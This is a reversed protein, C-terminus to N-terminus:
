FKKIKEKFPRVEFIPFEIIFMAGQGAESECWIKGNMAETLKKAISLGLGTSHEGGTPRASLRQFKGFLKQMEEPHLGVGEDKIEIRTMDEKKFLRFNISKGLPSYKIANSFVNDMVQMAYRADALIYIKPDIEKIINIKKEHAASKYRAIVHEVVDAALFPEINLSLRGSEIIETDLLNQILELMNASAIEIEKVYHAFEPKLGSEEMKLVNLMLKVSHLPNRLDHAAISIFEKREESLAILQENAKALEVNKLREIVADKIAQETEFQIRLNTARAEAQTNFMRKYAEFGAEAHSLAEEHRGLCKLVKVMTTECEHIMDPQELKQAIALAQLLYELAACNDGCLHFLYGLANLSTAEGRPNKTQHRIDLSKLLYDKAEDYRGLETLVTGINNCCSGQGAIDHVETRVKLSKFFYLLSEELNGKLFNVSGLNLLIIGERLRDKFLHVTDLARHYYELADDLNGMRQFALAINITVSAIRKQDAQDQSLSLAKKLVELAEAFNGLFTYANGLGILATIEGDYFKSTRSEELGERLYKMGTTIEGLSTYCNGLCIICLMEGKSYGQSRYIHLAKGYNEASLSHHGRAFDLDALNKLLRGHTISENSSVNVVDLGKRIVEEANKSEGLAIYCRAQIEYIEALIIDSSDQPFHLTLEEAYILTSRPATEINRRLDLIRNSIMESHITERDNGADINAM